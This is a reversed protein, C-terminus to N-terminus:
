NGAHGPLDAPKAGKVIHGHSPALQAKIM